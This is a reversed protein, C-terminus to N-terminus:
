DEPEIRREDRHLPMSRDSPGVEMRRGFFDLEETPYGPPLADGKDLVEDAELSTNGYQPLLALGRQGAFKRDTSSFFGYKKVNAEIWVFGMQGFNAHFKGNCSFCGIAPYMDLFCGKMIDMLKKGNRTIFYSGTSLSHGFGIVDSQQILPLVRANFRSQEGNHQQLPTPFPKNIKLNGTSEYAISFNNYGPLRFSNPYPRTVLGISFHSNSSERAFEFVKIEFYVVDITRNKVPLPYRLVATATSYPRENNVFNVETRDEVVFRATMIDAEQEFEFADIGRDRIIIEDQSTLTRGRLANSCPPNQRLYAEGQLFSRQEEPSILPFDYEDALRLIAEEDNLFDHDIDGAKFIEHLSRRWGKDAEASRLSRWCLLVLLWAIILITTGFLVIM